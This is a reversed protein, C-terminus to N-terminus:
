SSGMRQGVQQPVPVLAAPAQADRPPEPRM